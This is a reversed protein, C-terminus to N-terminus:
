CRFTAVVQVMEQAQSKLSSAAAAMEEVLAANQQTARDMGLVAEGVQAVGTAQETSAASIEGITDAVRQIGVVVEAMTGGARDALASGKEACAVSNGILTKIEKAAQASRGALSRVETAVVAFGRGQEGARAAEVAANLALINTQFAIGEIVSIIEGIQGSAAHIEKMTQVVADVVQGGQQAVASADTAWQSAQRAAEANQNVTASLQEMSAATEQLASAQQETRISLDHNGQAIEASATAVGEASGRVRTVVETLGQRMTHLAKMLVSMEDRGQITVEVTLDGAAIAQSVAVAQSVARTIGRILWVSLLGAVLLGLAMAVSALTSVQGFRTVAQTYEAKAVNLQLSLLKQMVEQTPAFLGPMVEDSIRQAERPNADRLARIGPAVAERALRERASAFAKALEGEEPTLYTALYAEWVKAVAAENADMEQAMAQLDAPRSAETVQGLIRVNNLLRYQIDALQGLPITRDEYVTKLADNSSAMGRLGMWGVGVLLFSMIGALLGLRTSIKM